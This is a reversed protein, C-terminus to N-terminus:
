VVRFEHWLLKECISVLLLIFGNITSIEGNSGFVFIDSTKLHPQYPEDGIIGDDILNRVSFYDILITCTYNQINIQLFFLNLRPTAILLEIEPMEMEGNVDDILNEFSPM